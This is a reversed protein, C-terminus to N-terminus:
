QYAEEELHLITKLEEDIKYKIILIGVGYGIAAYILTNILYVILYPLFSNVNDAQGILSVFLAGPIELLRIIWDASNPQLISLNFNWVTVSLAFIVHLVGFTIATKMPYASPSPPAAPEPAKKVEPAKHAAASIRSKGPLKMAM